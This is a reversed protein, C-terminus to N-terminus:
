DHASKTTMQLNGSLEIKSTFIKETYGRPDVYYPVHSIENVASFLNNEILWQNFFNWIDKSDKSSLHAPLELPEKNRSILPTQPEIDKIYQMLEEETKFFDNRFFSLQKTNRYTTLHWFNNGNEDKATAINMVFMRDDRYLEDQWEIFNKIM